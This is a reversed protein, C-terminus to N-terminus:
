WSKCYIHKDDGPAYFDKLVAELTYGCREYFRRTPHYLSQSSTEIYARTGGLTAIQAESAAMLRKGLGLGQTQPHVIIWYLDFSFRTCPIPGFCSYGLVEGRYNEALLFHYGSAPGKGLRELVLEGAVEVEPTSFFGTAEALRRVEGVDSERVERRFSIQDM